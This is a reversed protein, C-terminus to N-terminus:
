IWSDIHTYVEDIAKDNVVDQLSNALFWDQGLDGTLYDADPDNTVTSPSLIFTSNAGGGTNGLLHDVRTQYPNSGNYTAYRDYFQVM